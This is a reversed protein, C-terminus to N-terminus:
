SSNPVILTMGREIHSGHITQRFGRSPRTCSLRLFHFVPPKRRGVGFLGKPSTM